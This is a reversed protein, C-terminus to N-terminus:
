KYDNGLMLSEELQHRREAIQKSDSLVQKNIFHYNSLDEKKVISNNM